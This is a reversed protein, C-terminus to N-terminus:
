EIVAVPDPKMVYANFLGALIGGAFIGIFYAPV